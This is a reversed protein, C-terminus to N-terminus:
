LLACSSRHSAMKKDREHIPQDWRFSTQSPQPDWMDVNKVRWYDLRITGLHQIAKADQCAKDDDATLRIPSFLLPRVTSRLAFRDLRDPTYPLFSSPRVSSERKGKFFRLRVPSSLPELFNPSESDFSKSSISSTCDRDALTEQPFPLLSSM